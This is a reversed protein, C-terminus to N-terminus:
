FWATVRVVFVIVFTGIRFESIQTQANAFSPLKILMIKCWVCRYNRLKCRCIRIFKDYNSQLTANRLVRYNWYYSKEFSRRFIQHFLFTLHWGRNDVVSKNSKVSNALSKVADLSKVFLSQSEQYKRRTIDFVLVAIM